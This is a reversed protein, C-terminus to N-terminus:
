SGHGNGWFTTKVDGHIPPFYEPASPAAEHSSQLWPSRQMADFLDQNVTVCKSRVRGGLGLNVGLSHRDRVRLERVRVRVRPPVVLTAPDDSQM